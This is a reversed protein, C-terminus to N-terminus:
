KSLRKMMAEEMADCDPLQGTMMPYGSIAQNLLWREGRMYTAGASAIKEQLPEEFSPCRYNAELVLARSRFDEATLSDLVSHKMPLTYIILASSRISERLEEDQVAVVNYEPLGKAFATVKDKSRNWVSVKYGLEAAAVAAAKGAGGLGVILAKPQEAETQILQRLAQHVKIHGREAFRRYCETVLGPALADAVCLIVGTFDSNFCAVGEPTNVLINCAGILMSPGSVIEAKEFAQEKFPATVNIAKYSRLFKSYSEEFYKGQILDYQMADAYGATFLTPSMSHEIPDGILGFKDM